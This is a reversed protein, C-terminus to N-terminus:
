EGELGALPSLKIPELVIEELPPLPTSEVGLTPIDVAKIQRASLAVVLQRLGVAEDASVVVHLPAISAPQGLARVNRVARVPNPAPSETRAPGPSAAGADVPPVDLVRTERPAPTPDRLTWVAVVAIAVVTTAVGAWRWSSSWMWGEHVRESAIRARIRPLFEPSPDVGLAAEIERELADDSLGEHKHGDM